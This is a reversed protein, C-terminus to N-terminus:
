ISLEGRRVAFADLMIQRLESTTVPYRKSRLDEETAWAYQQHEAPDLTIKVDELGGDDGGAHGKIEAVEIEFNLKLVNKKRIIFEQGKGIQRAFRTLM